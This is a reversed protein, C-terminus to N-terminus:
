GHASIIEGVDDAVAERPEEPPQPPSERLLQVLHYAQAEVQTHGEPLDGILQESLHGRMIVAKSDPPPELLGQVEQSAAQLQGAQVRDGALAIAEPVEDLPERFVLDLDQVEKVPGSQAVLLDAFSDAGLHGRRAATQPGPPQVADSQDVQETAERTRQAAELGTRPKM